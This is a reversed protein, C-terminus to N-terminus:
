KNVTTPYKKAGKVYYWLIKNMMDDEGGDVENFVENQSIEAYKKEIGKLSSLSKNKEDLPVRNPVTTYTSNSKITQFCDTMLRSTADMSNMPPIGLIQEITRLMSVQNYKTHVMKNSTYPSIVMGVTRYASVHDWGGQSDDETVFIVTSDWYKSKSIMDVIRGLALDNDAVMSYPTPFNPSTGATHDNPLSVVMLNPLSDKAALQNWEEMFISARQQDSFVLNDCDPFTPSIISNLNDITTTNYWTPKIGQEYQKYIDFWNLKKDYETECAEGFVRVKKGYTLAHNWIFGAKNYVLADEQRHPYSRFWARVNKEVYDSVMGADTWQHGEASSKGSAHFNDMGGFQKVLAHTNPTYKEGFVCLSSDGNGNKVDGLVQDYTKNEKIIYVVHKFVSPEGIREPIPVPTVNPRAPLILQDLRSLLNQEKVNNTYVKLQAQDPLPIISVSALEQHITRAKRKEDIVNAGDSELNAVILKNEKILLGAPYAETPIFGEVVTKGTGLNASSKGLHIIAIANDLGNSVYLKKGDVSLSLGNPTSGQLNRGAMGVFINEVLQNNKANIVTIEDSSGNAVYIFKGDASAIIANPHLGVTMEKELKGNSTNFVSITDSATAGTIPSTYALGWPVGATSKSSDIVTEGAWNTVFIKKGSVALGFPAVGTNTKWVITRTDWNLKILENNGNLVVYIFYQNDEKVVEVQNPLANKAPAKKEFPISTVNKFGQKWEAIMIASNNGTAASWLMYEKENITITKIGSYTSMMGKYAQNQEFRWEDVVKNQLIDLVFVGYREEVVVLNKDSLNAIDLAHNELSPKGYRVVEGASKIIRNYPLERLASNRAVLYDSLESIKDTNIYDVKLTIMQEWADKFDPSAWFRIPKELGHSRNIAAQMKELDESLLPWRRKVVFNGYDGSLLAIRQLQEKTYDTNIRGDFWIFDPYQAFESPKPANGSIVILINKNNIISPYKKLLDVLANLTTIAETKIDILLQLKRTPNYAVMPALYLNELSRNPKLDNLNHGVLISGNSLFIDAEISGFLENFALTFPKNQEYDNHSHANATTYPQAMLGSFILIVTLLALAKKM